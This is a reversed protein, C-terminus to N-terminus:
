VEVTPDTFTALGQEVFSTADGAPLLLEDGATVERSSAALVRDEGVWTVSVLDPSGPTSKSRSAPM